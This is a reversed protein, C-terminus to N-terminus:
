GALKAGDKIWERVIGVDCQVVEAIREESMGM